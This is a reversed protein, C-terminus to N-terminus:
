LAFDFDFLDVVGEGTASVSKETDAFFDDLNGHPILTVSEVRYKMMRIKAFPTYLGLTFIIGLMNTLSIFVVKKWDVESVFDHEELKTNSWVINQLRSVFVSYVMHGWAFVGLGFLFLAFIGASKRAGGKFLAAGMAGFLPVMWLLGIIVLGIAVLYTAYFSKVPGHFSFHSTGYRSEDHQFKKMRQHVFPALLNLTFASITPLILYTFYAEFTSGAFGFRIGRYSSNRCKFQFSKWILWPMILGVAAVVALGAFISIKPAFKYAVLIGVAIIRGKLIAVPKGHYEFNSAALQTSSYFYRLRRVKAWASYIGLTLVTLLLNVIWIRFYESGSGTFSFREPLPPKPGFTSAVDQRPPPPAGLILTPPFDGMHRM